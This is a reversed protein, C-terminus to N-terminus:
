FGMSAIPCKSFLGLMPLAGFLTDPSPLTRPSGSSITSAM